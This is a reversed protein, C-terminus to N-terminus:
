AAFAGDLNPTAVITKQVDGLAVFESENTDIAVAQQRFGCTLGETVNLRVQLNCVNRCFFFSFLHARSRFSHFVVYGCNEQRTWGM